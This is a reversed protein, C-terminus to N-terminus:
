GSGILYRSGPVHHIEYTGIRKVTTEFLLLLIHM